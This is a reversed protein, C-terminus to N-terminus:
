RRKIRMHPEIYHITVPGVIDILLRFWDVCQLKDTPIQIRSRQIDDSSTFQFIETWRNVSPNRNDETDTAFFITVASGSPMDVLMYLDSIVKQQRLVGDFWAGTMHEAVIASGYDSTGKGVEFLRRGIDCGHLKGDVKFLSTVGYGWEYWNQTKINYVLITDNTFGPTTTFSTYLFEGSAGMCISDRDTYLTGSLINKVKSSIVEPRGGTFRKIEGRDFFYLAGDHECYANPGSCGSQLTEVWQYNFSTSGMLIHMSTESWVIAMDQYRAIATPEGPISTVFIDASDGGLWRYPNLIDSVHLSDNAVAYLRYDDSTYLNSKPAELVEDTGWINNDISYPILRGTSSEEALIAPSFMGFASSTYLGAGYWNGGLTAGETLDWSHEEMDYIWIRHPSSIQKTYIKSGHITTSDIDWSSGPSSSYEDLLKSSDLDYVGLSHSSVDKFYIYDEYGGVIDFSSNRIFGKLPFMITAYWKDELHYYFSSLYSGNEHEICTCLLDGSIFKLGYYEGFTKLDNADTLVKVYRLAELKPIIPDEPDEEMRKDIEKQYDDGYETELDARVGSDMSELVEMHGILDDLHEGVRVALLGGQSNGNYRKDKVNIRALSRCEKVSQLGGLSQLTDDWSDTPINYSMLDGSTHEVVYIKEGIRAMSSYNKGASESLTWTDEDIDYISFRGYSADGVSRDPHACYLKKGYVVGQNWSDVENVAGVRYDWLDRVESGDYSLRDTSNVLLTLRTQGQVFDFIKSPEDSLGTKITQWFSGTWRKWETGVHVHVEGGDRVGVANVPDPLIETDTGFIAERGPRTSLTPYKSPFTNFSETGESKKIQFPSVENNIGDSVHILEQPEYTHSLKKGFYAM